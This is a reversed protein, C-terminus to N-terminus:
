RLNHLFRQFTVPTHVPVIVSARVEGFPDLRDSISTTVQQPPETHWFMCPQGWLDRYTTYFASAAFRLLVVFLVNIRTWPATLAETIPTQVDPLNILGVYHWSLRENLLGFRECLAECSICCVSRRDARVVFHWSSWPILVPDLSCVSMQMAQALTQADSHDSLM